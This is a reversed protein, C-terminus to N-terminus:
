FRIGGRISVSTADIDIGTGKFDDFQHQLVEGGVYFQDSMKYAVGIGGFGGEDTGVLSADAQAIGGTVYLLVNGLDYGGRVKLRAVSDLDTVGGLNIEMWDFEAEGGLVFRGFDYDYGVHLGYTFDDGDVSGTGNVDAYGLNLGAYGGTWDGGYSVVPAAEVVVPEAPVPQLGGALAPSALALVAASASAFKSFRTM